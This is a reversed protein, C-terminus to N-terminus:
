PGQKPAPPFLHRTVALIIGFVQVASAGLWVNLVASSAHWHNNILYLVFIANVFALEIGTMWLSAHAVMLKLDTDGKKRRLDEAANLDTIQEASGTLGTGSPEATTV